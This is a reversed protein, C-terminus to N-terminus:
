AHQSWLHTAAIFDIASEQAAMDGVGAKRQRRDRLIRVVRGAAYMEM